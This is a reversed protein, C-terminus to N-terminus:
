VSFKYRILSSAEGDLKREIDFRILQGVRLGPAQSAAGESSINIIRSFPVLTPMEWSVFHSHGIFHVTCHPEAEAYSVVLPLM